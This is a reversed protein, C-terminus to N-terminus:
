ETAWYECLSASIRSRGELYQSCFCLNFCKADNKVETEQITSFHVLNHLKILQFIGKTMDVNM